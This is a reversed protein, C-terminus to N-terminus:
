ATVRVNDHLFEPAIDAGNSWAITHCEPHVQFRSFMAPDQLPDFVPGKLVPALNIEGSTGDHFRRWVVQWGVYRAKLVHYEM